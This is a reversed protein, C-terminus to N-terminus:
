MLYQNKVSSVSTSDVCSHKEMVCPLRHATYCAPATPQYICIEISLCDYGDAGAASSWGVRAFSVLALCAWAQLVAVHKRILSM